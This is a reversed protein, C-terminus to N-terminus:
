KEQKLREYIFFLLLMFDGIPLMGVEQCKNVLFIQVDIKYPRQNNMCCCLMLFAKFTQTSVIEVIKTIYHFLLIM